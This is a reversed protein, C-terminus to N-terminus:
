SAPQAAKEVRTELEAFIWNTLLMMVKFDTNEFLMCPLVSELISPEDDDAPLPSTREVAMMRRVFVDIPAMEVGAGSSKVFRKFAAKGAEYLADFRFRFVNHLANDLRELFETHSGLTYRIFELHRIDTPAEEVPDQTILIVSKGHAHAIGLEYYVNPNRGTCDAILVEAGKIQDKIKDLVPVTLVDADGRQCTVHHRREIHDKLYLYFYHLDPRFPMLVFVSREDAM